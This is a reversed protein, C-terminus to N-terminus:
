EGGGDPALGIAYREDRRAREERRPTLLTFSYRVLHVALM